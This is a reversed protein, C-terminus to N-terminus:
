EGTIIAGKNILADCHLSCAQASKKKLRRPEVATCSNRDYVLNACENWDEANGGSQGPINGVPVSM